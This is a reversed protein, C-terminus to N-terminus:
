FYNITIGGDVVLTSGTMWSSEDSALFIAAYVVDEPRGFRGAPIRGLRKSRREPDSSLQRLNPTEVPGPCIANARIGKRGYQVALSRTLALVAGKSMTYADQPATSGIMAAISAINIISGGGTELLAPVGYKCALFVSKANVELTREFAEESTECVSRDDDAFIGANNYLVDLRGFTKMGQQVVRQVDTPQTMDATLGSIQGGAKKVEAVVESLARGSVDVAVVKAGEKAFLRAAVRGMGNAAGTILAVKGELRM